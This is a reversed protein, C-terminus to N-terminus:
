SGRRRAHSSASRRGRAIAGVGATARQGSCHVRRDEWRTLGGSAGGHRRFGHHAAPERPDVPRPVARSWILLGIALVSAAVAASSLVLSWRTRTPADIAQIQGAGSIADDLEMRADAIDRLRYRAEKQLCRRLLRQVPAPTSAPLRSWDPENQLISAITDSVTEGAFATQGTLM